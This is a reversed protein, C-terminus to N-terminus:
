RESWFPHGHEAAACGLKFPWDSDAADDCYLHSRNQYSIEKANRKGGWKEVDMVLALGENRQM